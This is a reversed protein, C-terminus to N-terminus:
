DNTMYTVTISFSDEITIYARKKIRRKCEECTPRKAHKWGSMYPSRPRCLPVPKNFILKMHHHKLEQIALHTKMNEKRYSMM